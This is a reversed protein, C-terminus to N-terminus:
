DVGLQSRQQGITDNIKKVLSRVEDNPSAALQEQVIRLANKMAKYKTDTTDYEEWASQVERHKFKVWIGLAVALVTLLMDIWKAYRSPSETNSKRAAEIFNKAWVEFAERDTATDVKKQSLELSEKALEYQAVANPEAFGNKEIAEILVAAAQTYERNAKNLEKVQAALDTNPQAAIVCGEAAVVLLVIFVLIRKM